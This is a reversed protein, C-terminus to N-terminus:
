PTPTEAPAPTPAPTQDRISELQASDRYTQGDWVYVYRHGLLWTALNRYGNTKTELRKIRGPITAIHQWGTEKKEFIEFNCFGAPECSRRYNTVAIELRGDDNLDLMKYEYDTCDVDSSDQGFYAFVEDPLVRTCKAALTLAPLALAAMFVFLLANRGTM